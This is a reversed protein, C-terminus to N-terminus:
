RERYVDVILMSAYPEEKLKEPSLTGYTQHNIFLELTRDPRRMIYSSDDEYDMIAMGVEDESPFEGTQFTVTYSGLFLICIVVAVVISIKNQKQEGRVAKRIQDFRRNVERDQMSKKEESQGIVGIHLFKKKKKDRRSQESQKQYAFLLVQGYEVIQRSRLCKCVRSDCRLESLYDVIFYLLYVAPNWWLVCRLVKVVMSIWLDGYMYHLIEHKLALRVREDSCNEMIRPFLVNPRFYGISFPILINSSVILRGKKQCGLEQLAEEYLTSMRRSPVSDERAVILFCGLFNQVLLCLCVVTGIAWLLLLFQFLSINGWIPVKSWRFFDSFFGPLRINRAGPIEIPFLCRMVSLVLGLALAWLMHWDAKRFLCYCLVTFSAFFLFATFVSFESFMPQWAVTM